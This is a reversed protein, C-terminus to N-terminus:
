YLEMQNILNLAFIIEWRLNKHKAFPKNKVWFDPETHKCFYFNNRNKLKCENNEFYIYFSLKREFLLTNNVLQSAIV